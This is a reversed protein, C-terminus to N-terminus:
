QAPEIRLNLTVPKALESLAPESDAATQLAEALPPAKSKSPRNHGVHKLWAAHLDKQRKLVLPLLEAARRNTKLEPFDVLNIGAALEAGTVHGVTQNNEMIAYRSDADLGTVTLRHENFREVFRLREISAADWTPDMPMPIRTRWRFSVGGNAAAIRAVRKTPSTLAAADLTAADVKAPMRWAELVGLAMVLHGTAGPHVGDRALVFDKDTKRRYALLDRMPDHIAAVPRRVRQERVWAAYAGLTDNYNEYPTKYGFLPADIKVKTKKNLPDFVPPTMAVIVGPRESSGGIQKEIKGILRQV